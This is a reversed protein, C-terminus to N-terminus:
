VRTKIQPDAATNKELASTLLLLLFTMHCDGAVTEKTHLNGPQQTNPLQLFRSRQV